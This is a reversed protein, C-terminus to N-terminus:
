SGVPVVYTGFAQFINRYVWPRPENALSGQLTETAQGYQLDVRAGFRRHAALDPPTELVVGAQSLSFNNSLVDYARLLNVRGIPYNFNYGYYTDLSAGFKLDHLYDSLVKQDDTVTTQTPAPAPGQQAASQEEVSAKLRALETELAVIRQL